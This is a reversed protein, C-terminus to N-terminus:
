CPSPMSIRGQRVLSKSLELKKNPVVKQQVTLPFPQALVLCVNKVCRGLPSLTHPILFTAVTIM